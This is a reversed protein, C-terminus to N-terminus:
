PHPSGTKRDTMAKEYLTLGGNDVVKLTANKGTNFIVVQSNEAAYAALFLGTVVAIISALKM